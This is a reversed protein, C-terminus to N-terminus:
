RTASGTACSCTRSCAARPMPRYLVAVEDRSEGEDVLREIESVVFRAEAHEDELERVHVPEGDGPDSWLSKEKRSRNNAIVANSANLITQTSRYNQELKVM